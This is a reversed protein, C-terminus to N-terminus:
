RAARFCGPTEPVFQGEQSPDECHRASKARVQSSTAVLVVLRGGIKTAIDPELRTKIGHLVGSRSM